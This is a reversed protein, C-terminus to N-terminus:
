SKWFISSFEDVSMLPDTKHIMRHCNPCVIALDDLRTTRKSAAALPLLHHVECFKSGLQGYKEEFDFRCAACAIKRGQGIAEAIKKARLRASRERKLHSVLRLGGEGAEDDFFSEVYADAKKYGDGDPKWFMSKIEQRTDDVFILKFSGIIIENKKNIGEHEGAYNLIATRKRISLSFMAPILSRDPAMCQHELEPFDGEDVFLGVDLLDRYGKPTGKTWFICFM